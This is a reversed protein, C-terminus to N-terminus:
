LMVLVQSWWKGVLEEGERETEQARHKATGGDGGGSGGGM